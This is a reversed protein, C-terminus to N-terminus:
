INFCMKNKNEDMIILQFLSSAKKNTKLIQIPKMNLHQYVYSFKSQRFIISLPHKLDAYRFIINCLPTNIYYQLLINRIVQKM